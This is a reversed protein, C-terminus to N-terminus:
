EGALLHWVPPWILLAALALLSLAVGFWARLNVDRNRLIAYLLLWSGIWAVLMFTEKGSYPGIGEAGPIWAKGVDLVQEKARKSLVTAVQVVALVLLGISASLFSAVIAGNPRLGAQPRTEAPM